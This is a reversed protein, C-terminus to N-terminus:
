CSCHAHRCWWMDHNQAATEGPHTGDLFQAVGFDANRQDIAVVVMGKLRQEVLDGGGLQSRLLYGVRQALQLAAVVMEGQVRVVHELDVQGVLLHRGTREAVDVVVVQHDCEARDDVEKAGCPRCVM